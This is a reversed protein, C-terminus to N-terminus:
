PQIPRAVVESRAGVAALEELDTRFLMHHPVLVLQLGKGQRGANRRKALL